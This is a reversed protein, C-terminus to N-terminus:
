GGSVAGRAPSLAGHGAGDGGDLRRPREAGGAVQM